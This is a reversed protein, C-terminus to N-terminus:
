RMRIQNEEDKYAAVGVGDMVVLTPDYGVPTFFMVAGTPLMWQYGRETEEFDNGYRVKLSDLYDNESVHKPQVLVRYVTRSRKTYSVELYCSHGCVTGQFLYKLENGLRKKLTFSRRQLVKTFDSIDGKVEVGEFLIHAAATTSDTSVLTASTAEQATIAVAPLMLFLISLFLKMFSLFLHIFVLIFDEAVFNCKEQCVVACKVGKLCFVRMKKRDKRGCTADAMRRGVFCGM